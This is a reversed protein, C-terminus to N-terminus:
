KFRMVFPVVGTNIVDLLISPFIGVIVLISAMIILPIKEIVTTSSIEEYEAKLGGFFVTYSVKMIYAATVVIGILSIIAIIPYTQWTGALVQFEAVFGSLGPMGMSAMGGIIFTVAVVPLKRALGGLEPIQRTHTRRYIM